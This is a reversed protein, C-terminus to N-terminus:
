MESPMGGWETSIGAADEDSQQLQPATTVGVKKGKLSKPISLWNCEEKVDM